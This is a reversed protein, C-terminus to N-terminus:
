RGRPPLQRITDESAQRGRRYPDPIALRHLIERELREMATAAKEREHDYGLLHLFGPVALHALHHALPKGKQRAGAAVTGYALVIDGILAEGGIFRNPFSLVNTAADVGRWVRNLLRMAANDTLVIALEAAPTSLTAAAAAIARRMVLGADKNSKWRKSKVIVEIKLAPLARRAPPKKLPGRKPGDANRRRTTTPRSLARSSNTASLTPPRSTSM